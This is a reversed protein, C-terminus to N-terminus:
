TGAAELRRREDLRVARIFVCMCASADWAREPPCLPDHNSM